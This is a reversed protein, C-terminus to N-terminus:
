YVIKYLEVNKLNNKASDIEIGVEDGINGENVDNNNIQMSNVDNEFFEHNKLYGIRDGKILKESEITVGIINKDPIVSTIKGIKKYNSPINSITGDDTYFLDRIVKGDWQYKIMGRILMYLNWTNILTIDHNEADKIQKETFKVRDLPPIERQLNIISIGKVDIRNWEKIRRLTYKNVQLIDEDTPNGGIGKVELLLIPSDDCIQLDEEKIRSSDSSEEIEKDVDKIKEFGIYELCKILSEVLEEGTETIINNLFEWKNHEEKIKNELDKIKNEAEEQINKIDSEYKKVNEFEYEEDHLWTKNEFDPFLSPIINPIINKILSLIIEKKKSCQPLIIVIGGNKPNFMGGVIDNYKNLLLTKWNENLGNGPTFTIQYDMYKVNKEILTRFDTQKLSPNIKIEKGYDNKTGIGHYDQKFYPLFSWNNLKYNKGELSYNKSGFIIEQFTKSGAFVIFVGGHNLIREFDKQCQNMVIPRPNIIGKSCEGWFQDVDEPVDPKKYENSPESEALDICVIEQENINALDDNLYIPIYGKGPKVKYCSGLTGSSVNFGIKKLDDDIDKDLDLLLIKPKEYKIKEEKNDDSDNNKKFVSM